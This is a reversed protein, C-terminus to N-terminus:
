QAQSIVSETYGEILKLLDKASDAFTEEAENSIIQLTPSLKQLHQSLTAKRKNQQKLDNTDQQSTQEDSQTDSLTSVKIL